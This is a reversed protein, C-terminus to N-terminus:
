RCDTNINEMQKQKTNHVAPIAPSPAPISLTQSNYEDYSVFLLM